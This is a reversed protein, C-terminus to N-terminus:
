EKKAEIQKPTQQFYTIIGIILLVLGIPVLLDLLLKVALLILAATVYFYWPIIHKM